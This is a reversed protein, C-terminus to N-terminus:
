LLWPKEKFEEEQGLYVEMDVATDLCNYRKLNKMNKLSWGHGEDKYYPERTYQRTQFQLDHPLCSWLIHHRIVTDHCRTLDMRFGLMEYMYADFNFFFQGVQPIEWILKALYRWLERTEVISKRFIDFSIAYSPSDSFSAVIPYGPHGKFQSKGRPYVTEIDNSILAASEFRRLRFLLEDLDQFDDYILERQPLPQLCGHERFFKLEERVKGLDLSLVIDRLSWNAAITHPGYSPIIYHPYSIRDSTLLSGAYKSIESENDKLVKRSRPSLPAKSLEPCFFRGAEEIPIIIPPKYYEIENEIIRMSFKDDLDPRRCTIYFDPIGAETMMKRWVYGLGSSMIFNKDTDKAYPQEMVVWVPASPNGNNNVWGM